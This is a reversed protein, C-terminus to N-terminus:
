YITQDGDIGAVQRPMSSYINYKAVMDGLIENADRALGRFVKSVENRNVMTVSHDADRVELVSGSNNIIGRAALRSQKNYYNSLYIQTFIGSEEACLPPDIGTFSTNLYTNLTGVNHELWGSIAQPTPADSSADFENDYISYALTSISSM